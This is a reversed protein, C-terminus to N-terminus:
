VASQFEAGSRSLSRWTRWAALLILLRGIGSPVRQDVGPLAASETAAGFRQETGGIAEADASLDGEGEIGVQAQQSGGMIDFGVQGNRESAGSYWSTGRWQGCYSGSVVARDTREM